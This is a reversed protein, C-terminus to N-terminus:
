PLISFMVLVIKRKMFGIKFSSFVSLFSILSLLMWTSLRIVSNEIIIISYIESNNKTWWKNDDSLLQKLLSTTQHQQKPQQV